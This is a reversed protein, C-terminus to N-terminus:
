LSKKMVLANESPNSYYQKRIYEASFSNKEYFKIAQINSERVELWIRQVSIEILKASCASLLANGLGQRHNRKSIALNLIEAESFKRPTSIGQSFGGNTILRMLMFGVITDFQQICLTISEPNEIERVYSEAPWYSLNNEDQISMVEAINRPIMKRIKYQM